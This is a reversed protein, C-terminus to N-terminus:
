LASAEIDDSVTLLAAFAVAAIAEGILQLLLCSKTPQTVFGFRTPELLLL